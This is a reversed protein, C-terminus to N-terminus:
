ASLEGTTVASATIFIAMPKMADLYRLV